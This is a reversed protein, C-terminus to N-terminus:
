KESLAWLKKVIGRLSDAISSSEIFIGYHPKSQTYLFLVFPGMLWLSANMPFDNTYRMQRNPYRKTQKFSEESGVQKTLFHLKLENPAQKWFASIWSAYDDLFSPDQYGWWELTQGYRTSWRKINDFLFTKLKEDPIFQFRPMAYNQFLSQESFMRQLAKLEGLKDQFQREEQSILSDLDEPSPVQYFVKGDLNEERIFGQKALKKLSSYVTTRAFNTSHAIQPPSARGEKLLVLLVAQDTENLPLHSLSQQRINM